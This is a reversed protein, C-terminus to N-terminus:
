EAVRYTWFWNQKRLSPFYLSKYVENAEDKGKYWLFFWVDYHGDYNCLWYGSKVKTERLDSVKLKSKDTLDNVHLLIIGTDSVHDTKYEEVASNFSRKVYEQPLFKGIKIYQWSRRLFYGMYHKYAREFLEYATM